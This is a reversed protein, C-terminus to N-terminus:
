LFVPKIETCIERLIFLIILSYINEIFIIWNDHNLALVKIKPRDMRFVRWLCCLEIYKLEPAELRISSYYSQKTASVLITAFDKSEPVIKEVM